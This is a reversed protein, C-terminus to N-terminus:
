GTGSWMVENIIVSASIKAFVEGSQRNELGDGVSNGVFSLESTGSVIGSNSLTLTGSNSLAPISVSSVTATAGSLIFSGSALTGSVSESFVAYLTDVGDFRVGTVIPGVADTAVTTSAESPILNGSVDTMTTNNQIQVLPVAATDPSSIETIIVTLGTGSRNYGSVVYGAVSVTVGGTSGLISESFGIRVGDIKGNGNSDVTTRTLIKPAIADTVATDSFNGVYNDSSDKM